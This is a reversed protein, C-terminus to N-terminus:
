EGSLRPAVFGTPGHVRGKSLAPIATVPNPCAKLAKALLRRRAFPSGRYPSLFESTVVYKFDIRGAKAATM